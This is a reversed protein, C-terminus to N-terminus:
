NAREFWSFIQITSSALSLLTEKIMGETTQVYKFRGNPGHIM